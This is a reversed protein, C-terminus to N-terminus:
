ENLSAGVGMLILVISIVVQMVMVLMCNEEYDSFGDNVSKLVSLIPAVLLICGIEILQNSM